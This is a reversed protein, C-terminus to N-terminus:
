NREWAAMGGCIKSGLQTTNIIISKLCEKAASVKPEHCPLQYIRERKHFFFPQGKKRGLSRDCALRNDEKKAGHWPFFSTFVNQLRIACIQHSAPLSSPSCHFDNPVVPNGLPGKEVTEAWSKKFGPGSEFVTTLFDIM